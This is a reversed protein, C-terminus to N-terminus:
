SEFQVRFSELEADKALIRGDLVRAEELKAALADLDKVNAAVLHPTIEREWRQELLEMTQQADRRGGRIRVTAIDALDVDVEAQQKRHEADAIEAAEVLKQAANAEDIRQQADRSAREAAVRRLELSQRAVTGTSSSDAGGARAEESASAFAAEADKLRGQAVQ